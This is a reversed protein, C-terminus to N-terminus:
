LTAGCRYGEPQHYTGDSGVYGAGACVRYDTSTLYWSEFTYTRVGFPGQSVAAPMYHVDGSNGVIYCRVDTSQAPYPTFAACVVEVDSGTGLGPVTQAFAVCTQAYGCPGAYVSTSASAPAATAM